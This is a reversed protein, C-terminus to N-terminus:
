GLVGAIIPHPHATKESPSPSSMLLIAKVFPTACIENLFHQATEVGKDCHYKMRKM